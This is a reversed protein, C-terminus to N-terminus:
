DAANEGSREGKSCFDFDKIIHRSYLCYYLKSLEGNKRTNCICCHKCDKCRIVEVLEGADIKKILRVLEKTAYMRGLAIQHAMESQHCKQSCNDCKAMM